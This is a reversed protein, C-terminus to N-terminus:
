NSSRVLLRNLYFCILLGPIVTFVLTTFYGLMLRSLVCFGVILVLGILSLRLQVKTYTTACIRFIFMAVYLSLFMFPVALILFNFLRDNQLYYKLVVGVKQEATLVLELQPYLIAFLVVIMSILALDNAFVLRKYNNSATM